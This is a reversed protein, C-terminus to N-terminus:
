CIMLQPKLNLSCQLLFPGMEYFLYFLVRTHRFYSVGSYVVSM